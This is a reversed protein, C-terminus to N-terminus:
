GGTWWWPTAPSSRPRTRRWTSPPTPSTRAAGGLPAHPLEGAAARRPLPGGALFPRAREGRARDARPLHRQGARRAPRLGGGDGQGAPDLGGQGDRLGRQPRGGLLGHVSAISILAGGGARELHPVAYKAGLYHSTVMAAMARNWDALELDLATGGKNWYANNVLIDLRGFREAAGDITARIQADETVDTHAFVAEAGKATLEAVTQAGREDQVDAVVVRAGEEAFRHAIGRGIGQAAGTVVAVKGDLRM